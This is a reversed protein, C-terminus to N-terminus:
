RKALTEDLNLLVNGIVTWAAAEVVDVDKGLAGLPKTAVATAKVKDAAYAVHAQEYLERLRAVEVETPPRTLVTRFAFTIRSELTGGGEKMVRRALGQAAEVYCPDNLTVLAQLPTNTRIRRSTCSTREPADFTTMSPYPANRRIRIYLGRRFRNEDTDAKWDTTPGFAASLGFNPKPPQCPPGFMKKSLLGSAALAQDRVIEAPLRVRPGRSILRNFPDLRLAAETVQSSQRYAASTVILRIMKKTDWGVRQFETALWDLLEPHSPLDGQLGFDESTEVIGTGFLEEWLRNAAVRATLPNEPSVIWNALTLRDVKGAPIPAGMAAPLGADVKEGKNLWDGRILINTERAKGEKMVPVTTTAAAYRAELAKLETQLKALAPFLGHFYAALQDQEKKPRDKAPKQVIAVIAKPVGDAKPVGSDVAAGKEKLVDTDGHSQTSSKLPAGLVAKEWAARYKEVARAQEAVRKRLDTVQLKFEAADTSGVRAIEITPSEDRRDADETGNFVAFLRYYEKQTIPDYKHTHCQACAFTSALFVQTTTNVRDLVAAVRFEERNTGGETNTLTNRNFATAALQSPTPNTLLDGAIQEITFQDFPKNENLAQIVWDRYAWIVRDEDPAYGQSDAYRALDLWVSAWREGYAPRALLGDVLKEYSEPSADKVFADAEEITPPLGTLDLSLRRILAYRDAEAMPKLKEAELRALIFHDVENRAWDDQKVAPLTPRTPKLYAWHPTYAAGQAVWTRLTEVQASTLPAGHKGPPMLDDEDETAVRKLLESQAGQGPVIAPKGSKAPGIAGERLDLRLSGKRAAEDPGHCQFCRSALIPRIERNFDVGVDAAQGSVTCVSVFVLSFM